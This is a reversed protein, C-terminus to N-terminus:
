AIRLRQNSINIFCEFVADTLSAKGLAIGVEKVRISGATSYTTTVPAGTNGLATAEILYGTVTVPTLLAGASVSAGAAAKGYGFSQVPIHGFQASSTDASDQSLGLIHSTETPTQIVRVFGDSLATDPSVVRFASVTAAVRLSKCFTSPGVSAM